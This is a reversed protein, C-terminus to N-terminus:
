LDAEDAWDAPLPWDDIIGLEMLRSAILRLREHNAGGAVNATVARLTRLLYRSDWRLWDEGSWRNVIRELLRVSAEPESPAREDIFELIERLAFGLKLHEVTLVLREESEALTMGLLRPWDAFETLEGSLDVAPLDKLAEVRRQWYAAAKSGFDEAREGATKIQSQVYWAMHQRKEDSALDLLEGLLGDFGYGEIDVLWGVVVYDLLRDITTRDTGKFYRREGDGADPLVRRFVPVMTRLIDKSLNNIILIGTLFSKSANLSEMDEGPPCLKDLNEQLFGPRHWAMVGVYQGFALRLEVGGWGEELAKDLAESVTPPLEHKEARACRLLYLLLADALEGADTNLQSSLLDDELEDSNLPSFTEGLGKVVIEAGEDLLDSPVGITDNAMGDRLLRAVEGWRRGILRGCLRLVPAWSIAKGSRLQDELYGFLEWAKVADDADMLDMLEYVADPSQQALERLGYWRDGRARLAGLVGEAGVEGFSPLETGLLVRPDGTGHTTYMLFTPHEVETWRDRLEQLWEQEEASQFESPVISLV